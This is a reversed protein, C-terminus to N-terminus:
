RLALERDSSRAYDRRRHSAPEAPVYLHKVTLRTRELLAKAVITRHCHEPAREFCLLCSAANSALQAARILADQTDSGKLHQGYIKRFAAYDGRRAAERGPKPDGLEKLHVYTIGRSALAESLARKSFGPKRSIPVERVDLIQSVGSVVLTALFDALDAGEYGITFLQQTQV